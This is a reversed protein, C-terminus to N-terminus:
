VLPTETMAAYGINEQMLSFGPGSTATMGKVGNWIAGVAAGLAGIEDEMQIFAGGEQPLLIAMDEAVETSPTIPYGSFFRCGAKIAGRACAENGQIFYQESM